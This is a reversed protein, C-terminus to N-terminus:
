GAGNNGINRSSGTRALKEEKIKKMRELIKVAKSLSTGNFISKWVWPETFKLILIRRAMGNRMRRRLKSAVNKRAEKLHREILNVFRIEMEHFEELFEKKFQIIMNISFIVEELTATRFLKHWNARREEWFMAVLTSKIRGHNNGYLRRKRKIKKLRVRPFMNHKTLEGKLPHKIAM